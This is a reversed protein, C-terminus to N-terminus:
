SAIAGNGPMARVGAVAAFSPTWTSDAEQSSRGHQVRRVTAWREARRFDVKLWPTRASTAPRHLKRWIGILSWPTAM